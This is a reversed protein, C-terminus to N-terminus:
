REVLAKRANYVNMIASTLLSFMLYTAMTILVLQVAIGTQNLATGMFVATLEPYAIAVALSSNKTLNLYQNTLPPIIVRMAQPVIILKLTPKPRLGLAYAAETQGHSIALIGARVIEAIYSATYIVLAILLAFFEPPIGTGGEFGFGEMKPVDFVLPLGLLLSWLAFAAAPMVLILLLGARAVPYQEGTAEQRRRAWRAVLVTAAIGALFLVITVIAGTQLEATPLQVGRNSVFISGFLSIAERPGPLPELVVKYVFFIQLLLPINRFIEVYAGALRSVVWNPSLRAIGVVFGLMTALVIGILSVFITNLVGVLYVRWYSSSGDSYPILKFIIGFGAPDSLKDFDTAIGRKAMNTLTNDVLYWGVLVILVLLTAQYFLARYRPDNYIAAKAPTGTTPVTAM